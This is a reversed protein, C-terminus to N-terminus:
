LPKPLVPCRFRLAANNTYGLFTCNKLEENSDLDMLIPWGHTLGTQILVLCILSTNMVKLLTKIIM